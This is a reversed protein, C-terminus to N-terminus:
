PGGWDTILRDVFGHFFITSVYINPQGQARAYDPNHHGPFYDWTSAVNLIIRSYEVLLEIPPLVDGVKVESWLRQPYITTTSM